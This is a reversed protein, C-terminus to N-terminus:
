LLDLLSNIQNKVGKDLGDRNLLLPTVKANLASLYDNEGDGIYIVDELDDKYDILRLATLIPEPSPKTEKSNDNGVYVDFYDLPINGIKSIPFCRM